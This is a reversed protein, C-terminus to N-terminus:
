RCPTFNHTQVSLSEGTPFNQAQGRENMQALDPIELFLFCYQSNHLVFSAEKVRTRQRM